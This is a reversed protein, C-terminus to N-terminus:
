EGTVDKNSWCRVLDDDLLGEVVSEKALSFFLFSIHVINSLIKLTNQILIDQTLQCDFLNWLWCPLLLEEDADAGDMM